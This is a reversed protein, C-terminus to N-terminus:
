LVHFVVFSRSAEAMADLVETRMRSGGVATRTGAGYVIPRVGLFEYRSSGQPSDDKIAREKEVM